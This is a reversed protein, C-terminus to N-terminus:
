EILKLREKTFTNKGTGELDYMITFQDDRVTGQKVISTEFLEPLLVSSQDRWLWAQARQYTDDKLLNLPINKFDLPLIDYGSLYLIGTLIALSLHLGGILAAFPSLRFSLFSHPRKEGDM